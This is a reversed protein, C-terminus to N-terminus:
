ERGKREKRYLVQAWTAKMAAIAIFFVGLWSLIEHM